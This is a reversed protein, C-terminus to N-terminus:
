HQKFNMVVLLLELLGLLHGINIQSMSDRSLVVHSRGNHWLLFWKSWGLSFPVDIEYFLFSTSLMLLYEYFVRFMLLSTFFRSANPPFQTLDESVTTAKIKVKRRCKKVSGYVFCVGCLNMTEWNMLQRELEINRNMVCKKIVQGCVKKVQLVDKRWTKSGCVFVCLVSSVEAPGDKM